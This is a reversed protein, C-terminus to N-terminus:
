SGTAAWPRAEARDRAEQMRCKGVGLPTAAFDVQHLLGQSRLALIDTAVKPWSRTDFLLVTGLEPGKGNVEARNAVWSLVQEETSGEPESCDVPPMVLHNTNMREPLPQTERFGDDRYRRYLFVFLMELPDRWEGEGTYLEALWRAGPVIGTLKERREFMWQQIAGLVFWLLSTDDIVRRAVADAFLAADPTGDLSKMIDHVADGYYLAKEKGWVALWHEFGFVIGPPLPHRDLYEDIMDWSDADAALLAPGLRNIVPEIPVDRLLLSAFRWPSLPGYKEGDLWDSWINPAELLTAVSNRAPETM